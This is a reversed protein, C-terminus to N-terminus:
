ENYIKEDILTEQVLKGKPDFCFYKFHKKFELDVMKQGTRNKEITCIVWQQFEKMRSPNYIVNTKSIIKSKDNLILCIDAEYDIASSGRLHFIHLRKAKLGERDAAVIAFVPIEASLALDKLGQTIYTIKEDETPPEPFVPIKQLYDVFLVVDGYMAKAELVMSRISQLTTKISNGKFFHLHDKYHELKDLVMKGRHSNRLLDIFGVRGESAKMIGEIVDHETLGQDFATAGVPNISELPVLRKFLYAVDHEYCVYLCHAQKTAAINRAIQMCLITKGVGQAGGVLILEKAAAGSISKDLIDFGTQYVKFSSTEGKETDIHIKHLIESVSVPRDSYDKDVASTLEEYVFNVVTQPDRRGDKVMALSMEMTHRFKERVHYDRLAHVLRPFEEATTDTGIALETWYDMGGFKEWEGNEKMRRQIADADIDENDLMCDLVARIMLRNRSTYVGLQPGFERIMRALDIAPKKLFVGLLERELALQDVGVPVCRNMLNGGRNSDMEEREITNEKGEIGSEPSGIEEPM